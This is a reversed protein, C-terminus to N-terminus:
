SRHETMATSTSEQAEAGALYNRGSVWSLGRVLEAMELKLKGTSKRQDSERVANIRHRRKYDRDTGDMHKRLIRM